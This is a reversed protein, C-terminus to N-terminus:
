EPSVPAPPGMPPSAPLQESVLLHLDMQGWGALSLWGRPHM